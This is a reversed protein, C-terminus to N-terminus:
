DVNMEECKVGTRNDQETRKYGRPTKIAERRTILDHQHIGHFFIRGIKILQM